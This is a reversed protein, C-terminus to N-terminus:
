ESTVNSTWALHGESIYHCVTDGPKVKLIEFGVYEPNWKSTDSHCMAVVANNNEKSALSLKYVKSSPVEHCLFVAYPYAQRHCIVSTSGGERQVSTYQQGATGIETSLAKVNKGLKYVVFDV